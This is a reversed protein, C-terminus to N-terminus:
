TPDGEELLREVKERYGDAPPGAAREVAAAPRAVRRAFAAVAAGGLLLVAVPVLWAALYFGEAPPANLVGPGYQEVFGAVIAERDDGAALRVRILDRMQGCVPLPCDQLTYGQCLPCNLDRAIAAVAEPPVEVTPQARAAIPAALLAVALATALGLARPVTV